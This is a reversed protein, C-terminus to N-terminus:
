FICSTRSLLGYLIHKKVPPRQVNLINIVQKETFALLLFLHQTKWYLCRESTAHRPVIAEIAQALAVGLPRALTAFYGSVSGKLVLVAKSCVQQICSKLNGNCHEANKEETRPPSSPFSCQLSIGKNVHM